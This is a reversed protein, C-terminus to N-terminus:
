LLSLSDDLKLNLKETRGGLLEVVYKARRPPCFSTPYSEPGVDLVRHILRYNEDFWLIDLRFKMDKMWFCNATPGEFVFLMGEDPQLGPQGSLGKSRELDDDAVQVKFVRDGLSVRRGRMGHDLRSGVAVVGGVLVVLGVLFVFSSRKM